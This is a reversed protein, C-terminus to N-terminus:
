KASGQCDQPTPKFFEVTLKNGDANTIVFSRYSPSGDKIARAAESFDFQRIFRGFISDNPSGSDYDWLKVDVERM